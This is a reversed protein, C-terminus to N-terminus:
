PNLMDVDKDQTEEYYKDLLIVLGKWNENISKWEKTRPLLEYIMLHQYPPVAASLLLHPHQQRHMSSPQYYSMIDQGSLVILVGMVVVVATVDQVDFM